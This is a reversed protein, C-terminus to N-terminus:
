NKFNCCKQFWFKKRRNFYFFRISFISWDTIGFSFIRLVITQPEFENMYLNNIFL